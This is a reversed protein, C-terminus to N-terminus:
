VENGGIKIPDHWNRYERLAGEVSDGIIKEIREPDVNINKVVLLNLIAQVAYAKAAANDPIAGNHKLQEVVPVVWVAASAIQDAIDPEALRFERWTKAALGLLWGTLAAALVPLVAEFVTLGIETWNIM